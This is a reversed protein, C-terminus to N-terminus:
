NDEDDIEEKPQTSANEHARKDLLLLEIERDSLGLRKLRTYDQIFEFAHKM